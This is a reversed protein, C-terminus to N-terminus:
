QQKVIHNKIDEITKTLKMNAVDKETLQYDVINLVEQYRKLKILAQIKLKIAGVSSPSLELAKDGMKLAWNYKNRKLCANGLNKIYQPSKFNDVKKYQTIDQDYIVARVFHKLLGTDRFYPAVRHGAYPYQMFLGDPYAKKLEKEIFTNDLKNKPDYAIVPKINKNTKLHLEHNFKGKPPNRKGYIPHMSNRPSIALIDCNLPSSYYLASYAGLSFGYSIKKDYYEVPTKVTMMFSERSLDQQYSDARRRRVAIIDVNEKLLFKFAFPKKNWTNNISDFTFCVKNTNNHQKYFEIRSEGNNFLVLKTYDTNYKENSYLDNYLVKAKNHNGVMQYIMAQKWQLKFSYNLQERDLNGYYELAMRWDFRRIANHVGEILLKRNTPYYTLATNLIIKNKEDKKCKKLCTIYQHYNKLPQNENLSFIEEWYFASKEWKKDTFNWKALKLNLEYSYPYIKIGQELIEVADLNQKNRLYYNSKRIYYRAPPNIKIKMLVECLLFYLHLFINRM